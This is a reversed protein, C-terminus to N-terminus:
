GPRTPETNSGKALAPSSRQRLFVAALMAGLLILALVSMRKGARRPPTDLYDLLVVHTGSALSIMIDGLDEGTKIEAPHGDVTAVWGPFNFTRIWLDDEDTLDARLCRIDLGHDKAHDTLAQAAQRNRAYIAYVRYGANALALSTAKGELNPFGQTNRSRRRRGQQM